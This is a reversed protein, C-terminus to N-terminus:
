PVSLGKFFTIKHNSEPFNKSCFDDMYKVFDDEDDEPVYVVITDVADNVYLVKVEFDRKHLESQLDEMEFLSVRIDYRLKRKITRGGDDMYIRMKGNDVKYKSDPLHKKCFEKMFEVFDGEVHENMFVRSTVAFLFGPPGPVDLDEKGISYHFTNEWDKRYPDIKFIESTLDAIERWSFKIEYWVRRKISRGKDDMNIKMKGM